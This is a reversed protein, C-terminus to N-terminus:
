AQCFDPTSFTPDPKALRATEQRVCLIAGDIVAVKQLIDATPAWAQRLSPLVAPTQM